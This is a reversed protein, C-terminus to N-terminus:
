QYKGCLLSGSRSGVSKLRELKFNFYWDNEVNQLMRLACSVSQVLDENSTTYHSVKLAFTSINNKVLKLATRARSTLIPYYLRKAFRRNSVSKAVDRVNFSTWLYSLLLTSLLEPM